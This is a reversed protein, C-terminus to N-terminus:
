LRGLDKLYGLSPNLNATKKVEITYTAEIPYSDILNFFTKFDFSGSDLRNHEDMVGFNNHLHFHGIKSNLVKFWRSLPEKSFLNLHGVDICVKLFPSPLHDLLGKIADPGDDWVNELFIPIRRKEAEEVIPALGKISEAKWKKYYDKDPVYQSYTSHFVMYRSGLDSAIQLGQKMRYEAVKRVMPDISHYALSYYPGHMGCTLGKTDLIKRINEVDSPWNGDLVAPSCFLSIELNIDLDIKLTAEQLNGNAISIFLNDRHIKM